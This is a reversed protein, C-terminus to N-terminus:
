WKAVGWFHASCLREAKEGCHLTADPVSIDHDSRLCKTARNSGQRATAVPAAVARQVWRVRPAVRSCLVALVECRLMKKM